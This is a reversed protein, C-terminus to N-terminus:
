RNHCPFSQLETWTPEPWPSINPVNGAIPPVIAEDRTKASCPGAGHAGASEEHMSIGSSSVRLGGHGDPVTTAASAARYPAGYQSPAFSSVSSLPHQSGAPAAGDALFSLSLRLFGHQRKTLPRKLPLKLDLPRPSMARVASLDVTAKGICDDTKLDDQDWVVLKLEHEDKVKFVFVQNWIPNIGGGIHTNSRYQQKGCRLIVYPDQQGIWDCDKLNEGGILSVTLEGPGEM